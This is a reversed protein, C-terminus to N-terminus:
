NTVVSTPYKLGPIQQIRRAGVSSGTLSNTLRYPYNSDSSHMVLIEVPTIWSQTLLTDELNIEWLSRDSLRLHKGNNLNDEIIPMQLQVTETLPYERKNFNNDIWNQLYSREKESLKAVGTDKKQQQTMELDFLSFALLAITLQFM